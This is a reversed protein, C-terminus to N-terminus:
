HVDSPRISRGLEELLAKAEQLDETDFGEAFWGYMEALIQRAEERRGQSQWLRRLNMVARLELSKASQRRAIEIAHLFCGEAEQLAGSAAHSTLRPAQPSSPRAEQWWGRAGQQGTSIAQQHAQVGSALRQVSVQALTLEGKARWLEVEDYEEGNHRAVAFAEDLVCLGEKIERRRAVAEALTRLLGSQGLQSGTTRLSTIGQRMCAIGEAYQGQGVLAWGQDFTGLPLWFALGQEAAVALLEEARAQISGWEGRLGHLVANFHLAWALSHAHALQRALAVAARSRQLAQDAYGLRWLTWSLFGAAVVGPDQGYRFALGQHHPVDYLAVAQQLHGRATIFRRLYFLSSGLGRHAQLLLAPDHGQETLRLCQEAFEHGKRCM